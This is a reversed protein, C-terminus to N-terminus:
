EPNRVRRSDSINRTKLVSGVLTPNLPLSVSPSHQFFQIDLEKTIRSPKGREVISSSSISPTQVESPILTSISISSIWLYYRPPPVTPFYVVTTTPVLVNLHPLYIRCLPPSLVSPYYTGSRSRSPPPVESTLLLGPAM